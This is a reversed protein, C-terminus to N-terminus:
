PPRCVAQRDVPRATVSRTHGVGIDVASRAPRGRGTMGIRNATAMKVEAASTKTTWGITVLSTSGISPPEGDTHFV